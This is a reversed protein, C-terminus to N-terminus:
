LLVVRPLKGNSNSRRWGRCRRPGAPQRQQQLKQNLFDPPLKKRTRSNWPTPFRFIKFFGFLRFDQVLSESLPLGVTGYDPFDSFGLVKRYFGKVLLQEKPQGIPVRSDCVFQSLTMMSLEVVMSSPFEPVGLPFKFIYVANQCWYLVVELASQGLHGGIAPAPQARKM